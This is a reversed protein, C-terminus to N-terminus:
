CTRFSLFPPPLLSPYFNPLFSPSLRLILLSTSRSHLPLPNGYIERDTTDVLARLVLAVPLFYSQKRISLSPSPSFVLDRPPIIVFLSVHSKLFIPIIEAETEASVTAACGSWLLIAM